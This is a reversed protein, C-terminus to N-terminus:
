RRKALVLQHESPPLPYATPAEFGSNALMHRYENLTWADGSLTNALMILSFAATAPPTIRDDNPVFEIIAVSGGPRLAKAAKTLIKQCTPPDFHHLFNPMLILDYDTGFDVQFADGPITTYRNEVGFRKANIKTLELVNQWDLGVIHARSHRQAFAIGFIGHSAAIDLVKSDRDDPLQIITAAAQAIPFVMPMMSHAFSLWVPNEPEVSPHESACGGKRVANTLAAFAAEHQQSLLFEITGGMYAQSKQSLFMASDPTLSYHGDRKELFGQITLFDCLIRTGRDSAQCRIAIASSTSAGHDIATFLDLEIAAKLAATVQYGNIATFFRMPSPMQQQASSPQQVAAQKEASAPM